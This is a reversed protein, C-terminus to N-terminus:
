FFTLPGGRFFNPFLYCFFWKSTFPSTPIALRKELFYPFLPHAEVVQLGIDLHRDAGSAVDRCLAPDLFIQFLPNSAVGKVM